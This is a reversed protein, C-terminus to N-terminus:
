RHRGATEEELTKVRKELGRVEEKLEIVLTSLRDFLPDSRGVTEGNVVGTGSRGQPVRSRDESRQSIGRIESELRDVRNRLSTIESQIALDSRAPSRDLFLFMGVMVGLIIVVLSLSRFSWRYKIKM